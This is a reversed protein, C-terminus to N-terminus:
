PFPNTWTKYQHDTITGDRHLQRVWHDWSQRMASRNQRGYQKLIYPQVGIKFAEIAQKKNYHTNRHWQTKAM